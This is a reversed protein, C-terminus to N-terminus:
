LFFYRPIPELWPQAVAPAQVRAAASTATCLIPIPFSPSFFGVGDAAAADMSMPRPCSCSQRQGMGRAKRIMDLITAFFLINKRHTPVLHAQCQEIIGNSKKELNSSEDEDDRTSCSGVLCSSSGGRLNSNVVSKQVKKNL